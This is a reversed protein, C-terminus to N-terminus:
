LLKCLGKQVWPRGIHFWSCMGIGPRPRGSFNAPEMVRGRAAADPVYDGSSLEM